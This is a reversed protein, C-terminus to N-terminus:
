VLKVNLGMAPFNVRGFRTSLIFMMMMLTVTLLSGTLLSTQDLFRTLKGDFSASLIVRKVLSINVCSVM